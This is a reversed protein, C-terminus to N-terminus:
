GVPRSERAIATDAQSPALIGLEVAKYLIGMSGTVKLGLDQAGARGPKENCILVWGRGFALAIAEAEGQDVGYTEGIKVALALEDPSLPIELLWGQRLATVVESGVQTAGCSESVVTPPVYLRGTFLDRLVGFIGGAVFYSLSGTDSVLASRLMKLVQQISYNSAGHM